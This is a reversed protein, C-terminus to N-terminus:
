RVALWELAAQPDGILLDFRADAAVIGDVAAIEEVARPANRLQVHSPTAPTMAQGTKLELIM